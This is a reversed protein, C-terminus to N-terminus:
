GLQHHTAVDCTIITTPGVFPNTLYVTPKVFDDNMFDGYVLGASRFVLFTNNGRDYTWRETPMTDNQKVGLSYVPNKLSSNVFNSGYLTISVATGRPCNITVNGVDNCGSVRTIIPSDSLGQAFLRASLLLVILTFCLILSRHVFM